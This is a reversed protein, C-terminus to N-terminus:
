GPLGDKDYLFDQSRAADAGPLAKVAATARVENILARRENPAVRMAVPTLRVVGQGHRTIIVEEGAEARKVLDTLHGKAETVSVEM